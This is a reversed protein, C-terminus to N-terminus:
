CGGGTTPKSAAYRALVADIFRNTSGLYLAPDLLRAREEATLHQAIADDAATAEALTGGQDLVRKSALALLHHARDRGVKEALKLSVAEALLLGHTRDLNEHMASSHVALGRVMAKMRELAGGTLVIIEPLTEWEAHWGGLGREGEQVMAALMTAVLGPVRMASSLVVAAGVPNRKHPMTSSGGQGAGESIEGIETQAGLALDRAMKGLTGTLLGLTTALEALRDRHTHWPLDPEQLQLAEALARSVVEGNAGLSALTGAAGGLQVVLLRSRLEALRARHRMMTDLSGACRLGFTIPVAHQMWTRGALLTHRHSETQEALLHCLEDMAQTFWDLADRLQLVLATDLVDQSTAGWHVYSAAEPAQTRVLETLQRVLPILVNGDSVAAEALADLDFRDAECCAAISQASAQPIIGTSGEARALASEFRLMSAVFNRESFIDRLVPVGFLSDFLHAM